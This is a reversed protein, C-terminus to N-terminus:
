LKMKQSTIQIFKDFYIDTCLFTVSGARVKGFYSFDMMLTGPTQKLHSALETLLLLCTATEMDVFHTM